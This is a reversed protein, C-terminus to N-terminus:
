SETKQKLKKGLIQKLHIFQRVDCRTKEPQLMVAPGAPGSSSPPQASPGATESRTEPSASSSSGAPCPISGTGTGPPEAPPLSVSVLM